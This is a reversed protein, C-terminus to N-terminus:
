QLQLYKHVSWQYITLIINYWQWLQRGLITTYSRGWTTNNPFLLMVVEISMAPVRNRASGTKYTRARKVATSLLETTHPTIGGLHNIIRNVILSATVCNQIFSQSCQWQVMGKIEILGDASKTLMDFPYQSYKTLQM